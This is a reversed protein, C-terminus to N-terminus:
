DHQESQQTSYRGETGKHQNRLSQSCVFTRKCKGVHLRMCSYAYMCVYMYVYVCVYVCVYVYLCVYVCVYAGAYMCVHMCVCVHLSVYMCVYTRKRHLWHLSIKTRRQTSTLKSLM